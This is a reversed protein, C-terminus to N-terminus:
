NKQKKPLEIGANHAYVKAVAADDELGLGSGSAAVFQQLAAATIPASFNANKAIDLVIGLDKPWINISSRPTYDDDIIHPARNELMWSSGACKSIVELFRKPEIGQTIGFTLAEAMAAIHVGALMQNVAKMASGAGPTEGFEFVTESTAELIPKAVECAKNSGSIMYSLKGESSKLSGGSIPADLYLLGNDESILAMEKAFNPSVTTCVMILTGERLKKAIGDKGFIIDRTQKENLVVIIVADLDNFSVNDKAGGEEMLKKQQVLNKDQGYVTYGSRILSEAIGFGMSGLGVVLIKKMNSM